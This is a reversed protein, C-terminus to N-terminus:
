RATVNPALMTGASQAFRIPNLTMPYTTAPATAARQSYKVPHERAV